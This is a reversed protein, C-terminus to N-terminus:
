WLIHQYVCDEECINIQRYMKEIDAIFLYKYFCNRLLVDGIDLQLKSGTALCDNISHGTSSKASTGFVVRLKINGKSRKVIPHHPIFYKGPVLASRMHGLTLYDSTFRRYESYLEPDKTLRRELNYLRNLAM